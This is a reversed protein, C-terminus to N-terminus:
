VDDRIILFVNEQILFHKNDNYIKKYLSLYINDNYMRRMYHSICMFTYQFYKNKMIYSLTEYLVIYMKHIFFHKNDNCIKKYFSFYINDNYIKKYLSFYINDNYMTEYLVIYM